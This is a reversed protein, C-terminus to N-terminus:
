CSVEELVSMATFAVSPTLPRKDVLTFWGYAVLVVVIPSFVFIISQVGEIIFLLKQYKLEEDRVLKVKESTQKEWANYKIMRIAALIENLLTVKRDRTSQQLDEYMALMKGLALILPQLLISALLGIVAGWGLLKIVFFSGVILEIPAMSFSVLYHVQSVRESDVSALNVVQTKSTFPVDETDTDNDSNDSGDDNKQTASGDGSIDKRRLSKAFIATNLQIRIRSRLWQAYITVLQGMLLSQGLISVSFLLCYPLGFRLRELGTPTKGDKQQDELFRIIQFTTYYPAYFLVANMCSLLQNLAILHGNSLILTRLLPWCSRLTPTPLKSPDAVEKSGLFIRSFNTYLLRASLHSGPSACDNEDLQGRKQAIKIMPLAQTFWLLSIISRGKGGLRALKIIGDPTNSHRTPGDPTTTVVVTGLLSVCLRTILFSVQVKGEDQPIILLAIDAISASIAIITYLVISLWLNAESMTTFAIYIALVWQLVGALSPAFAEMAKSGSTSGYRTAIYAAEALSLALATAGLLMLLTRTICIRNDYGRQDIAQGDLDKAVDIAESEEKSPLDFDEGLTIRRSRRRAIASIAILVILLEFVTTAVNPSVAIM